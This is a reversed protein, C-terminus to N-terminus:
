EQVPGLEKVDLWCLGDMAEAVSAAPPEYLTVAVTALQTDGAAIVLATTLVDGSELIVAGEETQELEPPWPAETGSAPTPAVYEHDIPFPAMLPPAPVRLMVKMAPTEPITVNFTVTCCPPQPEIPELFTVISVIHGAAKKVTVGQRTASM